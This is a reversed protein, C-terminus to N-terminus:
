IKEEEYETPVTMKAITKGDRREFSIGYNEGYALRIREQVNWVGYGKGGNKIIRDLKEQCIDPGNDSITICINKDDTLSAKIELLGTGSEVRDVGHIIANEVLPQVIFNICRYNHLREDIDYQVEFSGSHMVLQMSVYAKVNELEQELSIYIQGKNLSTRYFSSLLGVMYAAEDDGSEIANWKITSLVNYLFHPNIQAQLAKMEQKQEEIKVEYLTNVTKKLERTMEGFYNTISGIEDLNDDHIDVDFKGSQVERMKNHLAYIRKSVSGSLLIGIFALIIICLLGTGATVALISGSGDTLSKMSTYINVNWGNEEIHETRYIYDVGDLMAKKGNGAVVPIRGDKETSYMSNDNSDTISIIYRPDSNVVINEFLKNEDMVVHLVGLRNKIMIDWVDQMPCAVGLVGDEKHWYMNFDGATARYWEKDKVREINKLYTGIEPVDRDTYLTFTTIAENNRIIAEINSIFGENVSHWIYGDRERDYGEDIITFMKQNTIFSMIADNYRSIKNRVDTAVITLTYDMSQIAKEELMSVSQYYSYTGVVFVSAFIVIIYSATLKSRFKLKSFVTKLYNM